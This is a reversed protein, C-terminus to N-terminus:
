CMGSIIPMHGTPALKLPEGAVQVFYMLKQVELLTVFPDLLGRLYCAILEVMVARGPTM